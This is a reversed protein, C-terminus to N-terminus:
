KIMIIKKKQWLDISLIWLFATFPQNFHGAETDGVPGDKGSISHQIYFQPGTLQRVFVVRLTPPAQQGCGDIVSVISDPGELYGCSSTVKM